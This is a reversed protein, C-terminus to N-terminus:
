TSGGKEIAIILALSNKLVVTRLYTTNLQGSDIAVQCAQHLAKADALSIAGFEVPTKRDEASIRM